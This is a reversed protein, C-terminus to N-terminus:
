FLPLHTPSKRTLLILFDCCHFSFDFEQTQQAHCQTTHRKCGASSALVIVGGDGIVRQVGLDVGQVIAQLDIHGDVLFSWADLCVNGHTHTALVVWGFSGTQRMIQFMEHELTCLLISRHIVFRFLRKEIGDFCLELHIPLRGVLSSALGNIPHYVAKGVFRGSIENRIFVVLQHPMQYFQCFYMLDKDYLERLAPILILDIYDLSDSYALKTTIIALILRCTKNKSFFVSDLINTITDNNQPNKLKKLLKEIDKESLFGQNEQIGLAELYQMFSIQKKEGWFKAWSETDIKFFKGLIKTMLSKHHKYEATEIQGQLSDNAIIM